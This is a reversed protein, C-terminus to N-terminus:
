SHRDLYDLQLSWFVVAYVPYRCCLSGLPSPPPFAILPSCISFIFFPSREIFPVISWFAFIFVFSDPTSCIIPCPSQEVPPFCADLLHALSNLLFQLHALVQLSPTLGWPLSTSFSSQSPPCVSIIIFSLVLVISHKVNKSCHNFVALYVRLIQHNLKLDRDFSCPTHICVLM